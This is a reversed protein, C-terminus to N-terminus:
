QPQEGKDISAPWFTGSVLTPSNGILARGGVNGLIAYLARASAVQESSFPGPIGARYADRLPILAARDRDLMVDAALRDWEADSQAMIQAAERSAALFAAMARSQRDAWQDSFVWGNIPIDPSIEMKELMRHVSLIQKAGSGRLRAGYHWFTLIADLDGKDFLRSLLPPAGYIADNDASVDHKDTLKTYAQLILWSKDIKGGAIGIKKGVLDDVDLIRSDKPVIIGGAASSYPAFTYDKGMARQRSVWFWDSVMVDVGGGQIAVAAANKSALPVVEVVISRKRDLGHHRIVDLQWNVTGFKLAGVRITTPTDGAMATGSFLTGFLTSFLLVFVFPVFRPFMSGTVILGGRMMSGIPNPFISTRRGRAMGRLTMGRM